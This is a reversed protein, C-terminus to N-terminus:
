IKLSSSRPPASRDGEDEAVALVAAAARAVMGCAKLLRWSIMFGAVLVAVVNM